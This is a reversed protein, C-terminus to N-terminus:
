FDGEEDLTARAAAGSITKLEDFMRSSPAIGGPTARAKIECLATFAVAFGFDEKKEYACSAKVEDVQTSNMLEIDPIPQIFRQQASLVIAVRERKAKDDSGLKFIRRYIDFAAEVHREIEKLEAAYFKSWDRAATAKTQAEKYPRLLDADPEIKRYAGHLKGSARDHQQLLEDGKTRGAKSLTQLIFPGPNDRPPGQWNNARPRKHDFARKHTEFVDRKLSLGTKGADLITNGIYAMLISNPHDYGHKWIANEHFYSYLGVQSDCLGMLLHVQFERQGAEPSQLALEVGVEEVTKVEQEFNDMFDPPPPTFPQNKFNELFEQLWIFVVTDGGSLLSLLSQEGQISAIIVDPWNELEPINVANVIVPGTLTQFLTQTAPNKLPTSSRYYIENPKLLGTPDPIVLADSATSEPLSIRYKDVASSIENKIIFRLKDNLYASTLPHFGAQILEVAQEHLSKPGGGIDRNSHPSTVVDDDLVGSEIDGEVEDPERDRFGLVRSKSGAIRQVRSGSVNGAASVTRWLSSAAGPAWNLLPRITEELGDVLLRKLVDDPIGNHSLCLISQESLTQRSDIQSPRSARLLDFIRHVRHDGQLKIKLQSDRIWIKPEASKDDPHLVWLGKAGGIRGQVATPLRDYGIRKTISLLGAHNIFGCGDTMIKEAPAKVTPDWGEALVDPIYFIDDKAFELAPTSTSLGLAFRATYKAFPQHPNLGPPNHRQLFEDFSIRQEDGFWPLGRPREYDQNTQILYVSTTDKPPIPVYVRGNIVFRQALFRRVNEGEERVLKPPISLHLVGSSGLERAFRHSRGKRPRELHINYDDGSKTLRLPYEIQGGYYTSQGDWHEWPSEPESPGVGLGLGRSKGEKMAEYERDVETWVAANRFDSARGPRLIERVRPAIKANPGRFVGFNATMKAAIEDWTWQGISVGRALEWQVGLYVGAKDFQDQVMKSHAILHTPLKAGHQGGFLTSLSFPADPSSSPSTKTPSATLSASQTPAPSLRRTKSASPSMQTDAGRKLPSTQNASEMSSMSSTRSRNSFLSNSSSTSAFSSQTSSAQVPRPAPPPPPKMASNIRSASRMARYQLVEEEDEVDTRPDSDQKPGLGFLRQPGPLEDDEDEITVDGLTRAIVAASGPRSRSPRSPTAPSFGGPTIFTSTSGTHVNSPTSPSNVAPSRWVPPKAPSLEPIHDFNVNNWEDGDFSDDSATTPQSM